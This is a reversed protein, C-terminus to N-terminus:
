QQRHDERPTIAGTILGVIYDPTVDKTNVTAISKGLRLVTIKDSLRFVDEM